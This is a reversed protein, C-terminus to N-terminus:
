DTEVGAGVVAVEATAEDEVEVDDVVVVVGGVVAEVVVVVVDDVLAVIVAFYPDATRVKM